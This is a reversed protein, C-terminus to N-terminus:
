LSKIPANQPTNLQNLFNTYLDADSIFKSRLSSYFKGQYSIFHSYLSMTYCEMCFFMEGGKIGVWRMPPLVELMEWWHDESIESYPKQLSNEYNTYLPELEEWTLTILNGGNTRNYEEFNQNSYHVLAEGRRMTSLVSGTFGKIKDIIYLLEKDKDQM